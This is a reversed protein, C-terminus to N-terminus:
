KLQILVSASQDHWFLTEIETKTICSIVLDVLM